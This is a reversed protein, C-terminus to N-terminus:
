TVRVTLAVPAMVKPAVGTFLQRRSGECTYSGAVLGVPGRQESTSLATAMQPVLGSVSAEPVAMLRACFVRSLTPIWYPNFASTLPAILASSNTVRLSRM